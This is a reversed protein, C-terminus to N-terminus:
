RHPSRSFEVRFTSKRCEVRSFRDALKAGSLLWTFYAVNMDLDKPNQYQGDYLQPYSNCYIRFKLSPTDFENWNELKQKVYILIIM